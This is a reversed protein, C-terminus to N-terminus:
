ARKAGVSMSGREEGRMCLYVCLVMIFVSNMSLLFSPIDRLALWSCLLCLLSRLLLLPEKGKVEGHKHHSSTAGFIVVPGCHESKKHGFKSEELRRRLSVM